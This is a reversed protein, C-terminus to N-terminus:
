SEKTQMAVLTLLKESEIAAREYERIRTFSFEMGEVCAQMTELSETTIGKVTDRRRIEKNLDEALYHWGNTAMMAKIAVWRDVSEQANQIQEETIEPKRHRLRIISM